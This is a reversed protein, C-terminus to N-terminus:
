LGSRRWAGVLRPGFLAVLLWRRLNRVSTPDLRVARSLAALVVERPVAPDEEMRLVAEMGVNKALSRRVLVDREGLRGAEDARLRELLRVNESVSALFSQSANAGHRRYLYLPRDLYAMRYRLSFRLAMDTDAAYTGAVWPGVEALATRRVVPTSSSGMERGVLGEFTFDEAPRRKRLVEGTPVGEADVVARATSVWAVEPRAELLGVTEALYTPELRDDSELFAVVEGRAKGVGFNYTAGIGQNERFFPRIRGGFSRLVDRSGDTSGDDVVIVEAPPRTQSLASEVAEGVWAGHQFSPIVVSVDPKM